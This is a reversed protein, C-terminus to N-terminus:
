NVTIKEAQIILRKSTTGPPWCTMLTLMETDSTSSLYQVDDPEVIQTSIVEYKFEEDEYYLLVEDGLEIKRLLYFVSNYRSAEYFDVSSHSFLFINKGQGPLASGEAHAVGKTLAKQYIVSNFPDVDKIVRSVASIKPVVISFDLDPPTLESLEVEQNKNISYTVEHKLM